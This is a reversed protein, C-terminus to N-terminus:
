KKNPKFVLSLLLYFPIIFALARFRFIVLLLVIGLLLIIRGKNEKWKMNKVKLSMLPLEAVLLFSTIITIATLLFPHLIINQVTENDTYIGMLGISYLFLANAPTPMGIFYDAQRTDINFKALRLASLLPILLAIYPLFDPSPEGSLYSMQFMKFVLFGPAVGFSVLDALSDLQKGLESHVKLLRAAFGDFFDFVQSMTMLIAAQKYDSSFISVIALLGCALNALTLLNPIFSKM